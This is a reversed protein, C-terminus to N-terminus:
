LDIKAISCYDEDTYLADAAEYYKMTIDSIPVSLGETLQMALGVDKKMLATSFHPTFDGKVIERFRAEFSFSDGSSASIVDFFIDPHASPIFHRLIVDFLGGPHGLGAIKYLFQILFVVGDYPFSAYAKGSSLLLPDTDCSCYGFM